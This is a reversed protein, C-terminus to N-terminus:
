HMLPYLLMVGAIIFGAVALHRRRRPQALGAIALGLAVLEVLLCVVMMLGYGVVAGRDRDFLGPDSAALSVGYIVLGVMGALGALSLVFSWIGLRSQRAERKAVM